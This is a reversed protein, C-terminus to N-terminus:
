AQVALQRDRQVLHGLPEGSLAHAEAPCRIDARGRRRGLLAQHVELVRLVMTERGKLGLPANAHVKM